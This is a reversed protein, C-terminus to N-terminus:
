RVGASGDQQRKALEANSEAFADLFEVENDYAAVVVKRREHREPDYRFHELVFRVASDDTPDALPVWCM